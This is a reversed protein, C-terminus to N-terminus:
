EWGPKPQKPLVPLPRGNVVRPPGIVAELPVRKFPEPRIGGPIRPTRNASRLLGTEPNFEIHGGYLEKALM